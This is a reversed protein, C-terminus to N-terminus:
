TALDPALAQDAADPDRWGAARRWLAADHAARDLALARRVCLRAALEAGGALCSRAERAYFAALARAAALPIPGHDAIVAGGAHAFVADSLRRM